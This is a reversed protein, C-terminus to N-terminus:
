PFCKETTCFIIIYLNNHNNTEWGINRTGEFIKESSAKNARIVLSSERDHDLHNVIHVDLLSDSDMLPIAPILLINILMM